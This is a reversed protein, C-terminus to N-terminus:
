KLCCFLSENLMLSSVEYVCLSPTSSSDSGSSLLPPSVSSWSRTKLMHFPRLWLLTERIPVYKRRESEDCKRMLVDRHLHKKQSTSAFLLQGEDERASLWSLTIRLCRHLLVRDHAREADTGNGTPDSSWVVGGPSAPVAARPDTGQQPGGAACLGQPIRLSWVSLRAPLVEVGVYQCWVANWLERDGAQRHLAAQSWKVLLINWLWLLAWPARSRIWTGWAASRRWAGHEGWGGWRWAKAQSWRVSSRQSADRVREASSWKRVPVPGTRAGVRVHTAAEVRGASRRQGQGMEGLDGGRVAEDGQTLARLHCALLRQEAWSPQPTQVFSFLPCDLVSDLSLGRWQQSAGPCHRLLRSVWLTCLRCLPPPAGAARWEWVTLELGFLTKILDDPFM